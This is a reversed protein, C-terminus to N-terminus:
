RLEHVRIRRGDGFGVSGSRNVDDCTITFVGDSGYDHSTDVVLTGELAPLGAPARALLAELARAMRLGEIDEPEARVNPAAGDGGAYRLLTRQGARDADRPAASLALLFSRLVATGFVTRPADGGIGESARDNPGPTTAERAPSPAFRAATVPQSSSAEGARAQARVTGSVPSGSSAAESPASPKANAASGEDSPSNPSATELTTGELFLPSPESATAPAHPSVTTGVGTAIAITVSHIAVSAVVFTAAPKM